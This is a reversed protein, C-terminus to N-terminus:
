FLMQLPAHAEYVSSRDWALHLLYEPKIEAMVRDIFADDLISGKILRIGGEPPPSSEDLRLM